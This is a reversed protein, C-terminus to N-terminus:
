GEFGVLFGGSEAYFSCLGRTPYIKIDANPFLNLIEAKLADACDVNNCHAIRVKGGSYGLALINKILEATVKKNGRVKGIPQLTGEDSAKGILNIGLM